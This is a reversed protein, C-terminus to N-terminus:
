EPMIIVLTSVLNNLHVTQDACQRCLFLCKLPYVAKLLYVAGGGGGFFFTVDTIRM